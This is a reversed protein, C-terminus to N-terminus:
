NYLWFQLILLLVCTTILGVHILNRKTSLALQSKSNHAFRVRIYIRLILLIILALLLQSYREPGTLIIFGVIGAFIGLAGWPKLITFYEETAPIELGFLIKYLRIAQSPFFIAFFGCIFHDLSLLAINIFFAISLFDTM